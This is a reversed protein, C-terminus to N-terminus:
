NFIIRFLCFVSVPIINLSIFCDITGLLSFRDYNHISHLELSTCWLCWPGCQCLCAGCAVCVPEVHVVFVMPVMSVWPPLKWKFTPPALLLPLAPSGISPTATIGYYILLFLTLIRSAKLQFIATKDSMVM